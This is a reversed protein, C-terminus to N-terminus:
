EVEPCSGLPGISWITFAGDGKSDLEFNTVQSFDTASVISSSGSKKFKTWPLSVSQAKGSRTIKREYYYHDGNNSFINIDLDMVSSYTLCLGDWSSIDSPSDFVFQIGAYPYEAGDRLTTEFVSRDEFATGVDLYQPKWIISSYGDDFSKVSYGMGPFNVTNSRWIGESAQYVYYANKNIQGRRVEGDNDGAGWGMTDKEINMAARWRVGADDVCTFRTTGGIADTDM